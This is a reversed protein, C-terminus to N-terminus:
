GLAFRQSGSRALRSNLFRQLDRSEAASTGQPNAPSIPSTNSPWSGSCWPEAKAARHNLRFEAVLIGTPRPKLGQPPPAREALPPGKGLASPVGLDNGM